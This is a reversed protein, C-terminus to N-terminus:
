GTGNLQVKTTAGSAGRGVIGPQLLRLIQRKDWERYSEDREARPVMWRERALMGMEAVTLLESFDPSDAEGRLLARANKALESAFVERKIGHQRLGPSLGALTCAERVVRIKWNAGQGYEFNNSYANRKRKLYARMLEFVPDPIHFHGFGQTYGLSRFIPDLGLKLRNYVSSRGFASTTTVIALSPHKRKKSIIGCRTSYKRAFQDQVELSQVLSAVMKGGLIFSYPPVAGLVYADMVSTLRTKRDNGSWGVWEDRVRLNFVPDGLAILGLLKETHEDWVLFRMRRGYGQSVPISWTLAAYRFLRSQWSQPPVIELRPWIDEVSIEWGSAFFQQLFPANQTIFERERILLAARQASHMSRLVEKETGPPSLSGQITRVFGLDSLHRRLRTGILAEFEAVRRPAPSAAEPRRALLRERRGTM